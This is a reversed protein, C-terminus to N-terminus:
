LMVTLGQLLCMKQTPHVVSNTVNKLEMVRFLYFTIM